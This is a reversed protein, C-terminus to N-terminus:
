RSGFGNQRPGTAPTGLASSRTWHASYDSPICPRGFVRGPLTWSVQVLVIGALLLLATRATKLRERGCASAWLGAALALFMTDPLVLGKRFAEGGTVGGALVPIMLMPLFAVLACLSTLGASGLKGVLVDFARVRTLLLLGLTGERRESSIVDATLVCAACSGLFAAGVIANLLSRGMGGPAGLPWAWMLQPLLVLAGVMGVVFRSWYTAPSRARARLEREIIPLFTM